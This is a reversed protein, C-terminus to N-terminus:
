AKLLKSLIKNHKKKELERTKIIMLAYDLVKRNEDLLPTEERLIQGVYEKHYGTAEAITLHDGRELQKNIELPTSM